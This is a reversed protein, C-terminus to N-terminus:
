MELTVLFPNPASISLFTTHMHLFSLILIGTCFCITIKGYFMKGCHDVADKRSRIVRIWLVNFCCMKKRCKSQIKEKGKLNKKEKKCCYKILYFHVDLLPLPFYLLSHPLFFQLAEDRKEGPMKINLGCM